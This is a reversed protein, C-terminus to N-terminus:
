TQLHPRYGRQPAERGTQPPPNRHEVGRDSNEPTLILQRHHPAEDSRNVARGRGQQQLTHGADALRGDPCRPHRRGVLRTNENLGTPARSRVPRPSERTQTIKEIRDRVLQPRPQRPHLV